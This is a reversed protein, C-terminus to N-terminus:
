EDNVWRLRQPEGHLTREFNSVDDKGILWVSAGGEGGAAETRAAEAIGKDVRAFERTRGHRTRLHTVQPDRTETERRMVRVDSCRDVIRLGKM